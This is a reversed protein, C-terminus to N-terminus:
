LPKLVYLRHSSIGSHFTETLYEFVYFRTRKVGWWYLPPEPWTQLIPEYAIIEIKKVDHHRLSIFRRQERDKEMRRVFYTVWEKGEWIMWAEHGIELEKEGDLSM